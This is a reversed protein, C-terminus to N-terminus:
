REAKYLPVLPHAHSQFLHLVPAAAVREHSRGGRASEDAAHRSHSRPRDGLGRAAVPCRPRDRGREPARQRPREQEARPLLLEVAQGDLYLAAAGDPADRGLRVTPPM